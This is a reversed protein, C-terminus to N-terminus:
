LEFPMSNYIAEHNENSLEFVEGIGDLVVPEMPFKIARILHSYIFVVPKNDWLEYLNAQLSKYWHGTVMYTHKEIKNGWADIQENTTLDKAVVCKLIYFDVAEENNEESTVAFNDGPTLADSLSDYHGAYTAGHFEEDDSDGYSQSDNALPELTHYLWTKVHSRNMCRRWHGLRCPFCFCSLQKSRLACTNNESYGNVCHMARSGKLPKCEWQHSRQVDGLKVEWFVRSVERKQKDYMATAGTSLHMRLFAVVEVACTLRVSNQKLQEHTLARKIVAGAGDHEGKGHGSCFFNWNMEMGTLSWYRAVFYFPRKAKFQSAAGDSWVWHKKFSLGQDRLWQAHLLFAHQVFLTDHQKDDSVFFHMTKKIAGSAIRFYTILVFITVQKTYWHMSQIENQEKFAYNEVFDVISVVVDDLFKLISGSNNHKGM